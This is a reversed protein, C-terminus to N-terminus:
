LKDIMFCNKLITKAPSQANAKNVTNIKTNKMPAAMADALPEFGEPKSSLLM